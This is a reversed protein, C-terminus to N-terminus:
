NIFRSSSTKRAGQIPDHKSISRLFYQRIRWTGKLNNTTNWTHTKHRTKTSQKVIHIKVTSLHSFYTRQTVEAARKALVSTCFVNKIDVNKTRTLDLNNVSFLLYLLLPLIFIQTYVVTQMSVMFHQNNTKHYQEHEKEGHNMDTIEM